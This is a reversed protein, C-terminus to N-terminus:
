FNVGLRRARPGHLVKFDLLQPAANYLGFRPIEFAPDSNVNTFVAHASKFDLQKLLDLTQANYDGIPYAAVECRQGTIEQLISNNLTLQRKAEAPACKTLYPHDHTHNGITFLPDKSLERLEDRSMGAYFDDLRERPICKELPPFYKELIDYIAAPHPQLNTLYNWFEKLTAARHPPTFNWDKGDIHLTTEPISQELGRWQHFWLYKGPELHRTSIFFLAPASYKRLIPAAVTANNRFGDDFTIIVRKKGPRPILAESHPVIDFGARLLKIQAEFSAAEVGGPRHRPIEHYLLVTPLTPRSSTAPTLRAALGCAAPALKRILARM